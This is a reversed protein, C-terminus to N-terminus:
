KVLMLNIDYDKLQYFNDVVSLIDTYLYNHGEETTMANSQYLKDAVEFITYEVPETYVYSGDSLKAYAKIRWHATYEAKTKPNFKMTMAFSSSSQSSAFSRDCLGNQTSEYNKVYISDSDVYLYSEDVFDSLSYVIGSSVVSKGDIESEVSYVTRFGEASASIQYGNIEIGNEMIGNNTTVDEETINETASETTALQETTIEEFSTSEETTVEEMTPEETSTEEVTTTEETTTEEEKGDIVRGAYSWLSTDSLDIRLAPCVAYGSNNAYCGFIFIGGYSQVTTTYYSYYGPTRLWWANNMGEDFTYTEKNAVYATNARLRASDMDRLNESFGYATDCVEEVSLLFVKDYTTNGGETGYDPNAPNEVTSVVIAEQEDSSFASEIFETNLWERVSCTEWTVNQYIENYKLVDLNKDASLFAENGEISLIRWKIPEKTEGTADSQPYNGFYICDYTSVGESDREPNHLTIEDAGDAIAPIIPCVGITMTAAILIASMKKRLMKRTDYM